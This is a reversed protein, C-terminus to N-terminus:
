RQNVVQRVNWVGDVLVSFVYVGAKQLSLDCLVEMEHGVQREEVLRGAADYVRLHEIRHEDKAKIRVLGTTPNPSLTVWSNQGVPLVIPEETDSLCGPQSPSLCGNGDLKVIWANQRSGDHGFTTGTCLIGGDSTAEVNYFADYLAALPEVSYKRYWILEGMPSVKGITGYQKSQPLVWDREYGCVYFNGDLSPAISVWGSRENEAYSKSWLV